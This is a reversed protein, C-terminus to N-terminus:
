SEVLEQGKAMLTNTSGGSLQTQSKTVGHVAARWAERDKVIERLAQELEHGNLRHHWRVLEDEIAGKQKQRGNKGADPDKGILLSNAGSPWVIPAKAEADTGGIFM